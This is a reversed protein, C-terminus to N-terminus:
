QFLAKILPGSTGYGSLDSLVYAYVLTTLPFADVNTAATFNVAAWLTSNASGPVVSLPPRAANQAHAITHCRESRM